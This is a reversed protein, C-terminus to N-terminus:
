AVETPTQGAGQRLAGLLRRAQTVLQSSGRRAAVAALGDVDDGAGCREVCDAAVALVEGLGRVPTAAGLLGPLTAALVAWVTGYAGTVAATRAADALRNAKVSGEALLWALEGGLRAADLEGRAALVLVADVARLRDDADVCGLGLALALHVAPGVPGEAEALATLPETVGRMDGVAGYALSPLLCAALVERDAPLVSFWLAGAHKGHRCRRPTPDMAGFLWRFSPPFEARLEPRAGFEVGIRSTLWYSRQAQDEDRDSVRHRAAVPAAARLWSALRGGASTRLAAADDAASDASPATRAVRLLAQAFDNPAPEVGANQYDRLREVLVSPDITGTSLTPAALLCPLAGTGVLESAEWLRAETVVSLAGGLCDAEVPGMRRGLDGRAPDLVGLLGALVAELGRPEYAFYYPEDRWREWPFAARVAEAVAERDQHAFRVLGDLAREFAVPDEALGRAAAEAVAEEVTGAPAAVRQPEPVPPLIEEYPGSAESELASGFLREATQRHAASLLGAAEALERRVGPDVASLHRAVLQLAREQVDTDENGFAETVAPLLADAAGPERALVTGVLALQARLLKKETRFLVGSTMEALAGVPLTGAAALGTLLEQAYGAVISPTDAAIGVWEPIRAGVEEAEPALLRVIELPVRLNRIPGGRLLRSVCVDLIRKRDLTGDAVLAVLVTPWHREPRRGAKRTLREPPEAMGLAHAVLDPTQPDARLREALRDDTLHRTWGTVYGDTPAVAYGSRVVLGHVLEYRNEAVVRRGALREALDAAWEPTVEGLAALAHPGDTEWMLLDRAGLWSAAAAPTTLCGAGAVYLASCIKHPHHPPTTWKGAKVEARLAKLRTLAAKRGTADLPGLLAPVEATRGELVAALLAEVGDEPGGAAEARVGSEVRVGAGAVDGTAAGDTGAMSAGAGDTGAMSAGTVNTGTGMDDNM